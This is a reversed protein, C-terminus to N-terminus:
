SGRLSRMADSLDGHCPVAWHLGRRRLTAAAEADVALILDGGEARLLRRLVVLKAIIYLRPMGRGTAQVVVRTSPRLSRGISIDELAVVTIVATEDHWATTIRRPRPNASTM